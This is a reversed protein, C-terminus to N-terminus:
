NKYAEKISDYISDYYKKADKARFEPNREKILAINNNTKDITNIIDKVTFIRNGNEDTKKLMYRVLKKNKGQTREYLKLIDRNEVNPKQGKLKQAKRTESVSKFMEPLLKLRIATSKEDYVKQQKEYTKEGLKQKIIDNIDSKVKLKRIQPKTKLTNVLKVSNESEYRQALVDNIDPIDIKVPSNSISTEVSPKIKIDPVKREAEISKEEFKIRQYRNQNFKNEINKVLKILVGDEKQPRLYHSQEEVVRPNVYNPNEVNNILAQERESLNTNRVIRSINKHFIEAKAPPIIDMIRNFEEMSEIKIGDGLANDVFTKAHKDNDMRDFLTRMSHIESEKSQGQSYVNKFKDIIELRTKLNEPKTTSYIHLIDEHDAESIGKRYAMYDNCFKNILQKREKTYNEELFKADDGLISKTNQNKMMEKVTLKADYIEKNYTGASIMKDLNDIANENESHLKVYSSFEEPVALYAKKNPSKLMKIIHEASEKSGNLVDHQMYQVFELSKKDNANAFIKELTQIPMESRSVINFHAADPNKVMDYIKFVPKSDEKLKSDLMYNRSNYNAALSDMFAVRKKPANELLSTLKGTYVGLVNAIYSCDNWLQEPNKKFIVARPSVGYGKFNTNNNIATNKINNNEHILQM